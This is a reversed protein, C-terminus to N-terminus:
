HFFLLSFVLWVKENLLKSYVTWKMQAWSFLSVANLAQLLVTCSWSHSFHWRKFMKLQMQFHKLNLHGTPLMQMKVRDTILGKSLTHQSIMEQAFHWLRLLWPESMDGLTNGNKCVDMNQARKKRKEGGHKGKKKCGERNDRPQRKTKLWKREDNVSEWLSCRCLCLCVWFAILYITKIQLTKNEPLSTPLFFCCLVM